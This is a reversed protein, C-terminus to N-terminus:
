NLKILIIYEYDNVREGYKVCSTKKTNFIIYNKNGFNNCLVLIKHLGCRSPRTITIDDSFALAGM